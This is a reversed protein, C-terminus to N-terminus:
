KLLFKGRGRMMYQMKKKEGNKFARFGGALFGATVLAGIPVFPNERCKRLGKNWFNEPMEFMNEDPM